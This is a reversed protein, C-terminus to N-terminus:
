FLRKSPRDKQKWMKCAVTGEGCFLWFSEKLDQMGKSLIKLAKGDWGSYFGTDKGQGVLDKVAQEKVVKPRMQLRRRRVGQWDYQGQQVRCMELISKVEFCLAAEEVQLAKESKSGWKSQTGASISGRICSGKSHKKFSCSGETELRM